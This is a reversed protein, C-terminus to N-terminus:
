HASNLAFKAQSVLTELMLGANFPHEVTRTSTALSKAWGTLSQVSGGAPLDVIDFFRPDAGMQVALVDHCLKHLADVAQAPSWDKLVTVDGQAM